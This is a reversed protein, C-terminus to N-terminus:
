QQHHDYNTATTLTTRVARQKIQLVELQISIIQSSHHEWLKRSLQQRIRKKSFHSTTNILRPTQPQTAQQQPQAM